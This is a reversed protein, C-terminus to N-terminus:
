SVERAWFQPHSDGYTASGAGAHLTATAATTKWQLKITHSGASLGRVMAVFAIPLYGNQTSAARGTILGDDGGQRVGDVSIDLAVAANATSHQFTGYFGVLVDGGATVLTLALNTGDVDVYTSSTTTYDSGQNLTYQGTPPDKLFILQDRLHTNLLSSTVLEGTSWTKPTSWAM